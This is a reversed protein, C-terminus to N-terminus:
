SQRDGQARRLMEELQRIREEASRAREEAARRAEAEARAQAEAERRREESEELAQKQEAILQDAEDLQRAIRVYDGLEKGTELDACVLRDDRMWLLLGVERLRLKGDVMRIPRYGKSGRRYGRLTRPRDDREQDILIYLPVGARFYHDMKRVVDNHRTDPSVVELVLVCRGGYEALRFTGAKLDPERRLGVFLAVDPAHPRLGKKGWAVLCDTTVYYLPPGLPRSRAIDAFYGRELQHVPREPIVDGEQPHLVDELTLPVQELETGGDPTPVSVYRWGYRFPDDAPPETPPQPVSPASMAM